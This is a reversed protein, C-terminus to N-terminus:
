TRILGRGAYILGIGGVVIIFLALVAVTPGLDGLDAGYSVDRFGDLLWRHPSLRSVTALLGPARSIPFFAGGLLGLVLAVISAYAGAQEATRAVAAVLAAFAIAVLVGVVILVAVALPNGWTAGVVLTTAAVLVVMSVLGVILSSMLKGAAVAMPPMPSVLMRALTGQEQEELLSLVGFQVTFFLFFVSLSVAYYSALDSGRGETEVPALTIPPTLEMASATLQEIEAPDFRGGDAAVVSATALSVYDLENVFTGAIAEAVDVAISEGPDGVITIGAPEGRQVAESFGTPIVFGASVEGSDVLRELDTRDDAETVAVVAEDELGTLMAEFGEAVPGGDANVFGLEFASIEEVAGLTANLVLVLILPGAIGMIYASRDRSRQAIDKAAVTLAGRLTNM